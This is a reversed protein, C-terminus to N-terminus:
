PPHLECSIQTSPLVPRSRRSYGPRRATERSVGGVTVLYTYYTNKWDGDLTISWVGKELMKMSHSSACVSSNGAAYIKLEVASASPSWVKFVTKEKSYVAGLDNGFYAYEDLTHYYKKDSM